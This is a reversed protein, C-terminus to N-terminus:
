KLDGNTGVHQLAKSYSLLCIYDKDIVPMTSWMWSPFKHAHQVQNHEWWHAVKQCSCKWKELFASHTSIWSETWNSVSSGPLFSEASLSPYFHPRSYKWFTLAWILSLNSCTQTNSGSHFSCSWKELFAKWLFHCRPSLALHPKCFCFNRFWLRWINRHM